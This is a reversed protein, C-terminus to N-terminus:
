HRKKFGLMGLLSAFVATIIGAIALSSQNTADGTQPLSVPKSESKKVAKQYHDVAPHTEEVASSSDASSQVTSEASSSQASSSQSSASSSAISSTASSSVSATSSSQASSSVESSSVSSSQASSSTTSSSSAISQASSSESSASSSQQENTASSQVTKTLINLKPSTKFDYYSTTIEDKNTITYGKDEIEKFLEQKDVTYDKSKFTLESGDPLKFNLTNLGVRTLNAGSDFLNVPDSLDNSNPVTLGYQGVTDIFDQKSILLSTRTISKDNGDSDKITLTYSSQQNVTAVVNNDKNNLDISDSTLSSPDVNLAINKLFETFDAKSMTSTKSPVYANVVQNNVKIHQVYVTENDTSDAKALVVPNTLINVTQVGTALIGTIAIVSALKKANAGQKFTNKSNNKM